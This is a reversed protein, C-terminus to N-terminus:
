GSAAVTPDESRYSVLRHHADHAEAVSKATTEHDRRWGLGLERKSLCNRAKEIVMEATDPGDFEDVGVMTIKCRM